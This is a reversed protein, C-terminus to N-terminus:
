YHVGAAGGPRIRAITAEPTERRSDRLGDIKEKCLGLLVSSSQRIDACRYLTDLHTPIQLEIYGKRRRCRDNGAKAGSELLSLCSRHQHAAARHVAFLRQQQASELVHECAM